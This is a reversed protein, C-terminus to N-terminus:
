HRLAGLFGRRRQRNRVSELLTQIEPARLVVMHKRWAFGRSPDLFSYTVLLGDNVEDLCLERAQADDLEVGLVEFFPQRGPSSLKWPRRRSRGFVKRGRRLYDTQQQLTARELHISRLPANAAFDELVVTYGDPEELVRFREYEEQDLYGGIARLVLQYLDQDRKPESM